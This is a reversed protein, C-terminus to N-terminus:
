NLAMRAKGLARHVRVRASVASISLVRAIEKFNLDAIYRLRLIEQEDETLKRLVSDLFVKETLTDKAALVVPADENDISVDYKQKRWHQRCENRAIAFLWASFRVGQPQFKEINGIAKMWTDQLMDEAVHADRLQNVLYGFLKPTIDDWLTGVADKHGAKARAVLALEEALLM